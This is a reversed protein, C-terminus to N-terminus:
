AKGSEKEQQQSTRARVERSHTDLATPDSRLVTAVRDLTALKDESYLARLNSTLRDVTSERFSALGGQGTLPVGAPLQTCPSPLSPTNRKPVTRTSPMISFTRLIVRPYIQANGGKACAVVKGEGGEIEFASASCAGGGDYGITIDLRKYGITM